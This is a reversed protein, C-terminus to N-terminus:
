ALQFESMGGGEGFVFFGLFYNLKGQLILDIAASLVIYLDLFWLYPYPLFFCLLIPPLVFRCIRCLKDWRFMHVSLDAVLFIVQMKM